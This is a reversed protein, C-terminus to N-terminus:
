WEHGPLDVKGIAGGELGNEAYCGLVDILLWGHKYAEFTGICKSNESGQINRLM